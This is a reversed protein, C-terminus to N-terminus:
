TTENFLPKYPLNKQGTWLKVPLAEPPCSLFPIKLKGKLEYGALGDSYNHAIGFDALKVRSQTHLLCNRLALDMHAIQQETLYEMASAVQNAFHLCERETLVIHKERLNQLVHKLDGYLAYELVMLFPQAEFCGGECATVNPHKLLLQLAAESMFLKAGSKVKEPKLTKVAYKTEEGTKSMSTALYVDGFEGNGLHQVPLLDSRQFGHRGVIPDLRLKKPSPGTVFFPSARRTAFEDCVRIIRNYAYNANDVQTCLLAIVHITNLKPDKICICLLQEMANAELDQEVNLVKEVADDVSMKSNKVLEMMEMRQKETMRMQAPLVHKGPSPGHDNARPRASSAPVDVLVVDAIHAVLFKQTQLSLANVVEVNESTIFVGSDQLHDSTSREGWLQRLPKALIESASRFLDDMTMSSPNTSIGFESLWWARSTVPASGMYRVPIASKTQNDHNSQESDVSKLSCLDEATETAEDPLSKLLLPNESPRKLSFVHVHRFPVMPNQTIYAFFGPDDSHVVVKYM